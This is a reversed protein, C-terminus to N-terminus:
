NLPPLQSFRKWRKRMLFFLRWMSIINCAEWVELYFALMGMFKFFIVSVINGYITCVWQYYMIVSSPIPFTSRNREMNPHIPILIKGGGFTNYICYYLKHPKHCIFFIRGGKYLPYFPVVKTIYVWIKQCPIPINCSFNNRKMFIFVINFTDEVLTHMRATMESLIQM